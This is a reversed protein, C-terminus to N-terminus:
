SILTLIKSDEEMVQYIKEEVRRKQWKKEIERFNHEM